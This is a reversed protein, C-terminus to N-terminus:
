NRVIKWIFYTHKILYTRSASESIYVGKSIDFKKDYTMLTTEGNM